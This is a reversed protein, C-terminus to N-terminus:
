SNAHGESFPHSFVCPFEVHKAFGYFDMSRINNTTVLLCWSESKRKRHRSRHLLSVRYSSTRTWTYLRTCATCTATTSQAIERQNSHARFPFPASTTVCNGVFARFRTKGASAKGKVKSKSSSSLSLSLSLCIFSCILRTAFSLFLPLSLSLPLFLM